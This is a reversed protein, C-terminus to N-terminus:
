MGVNYHVATKQYPYIHIKFNAGSLFEKVVMYLLDLCTWIISVVLSYLSFFFLFLLQLTKKSVLHTRRSSTGQTSEKKEEEM